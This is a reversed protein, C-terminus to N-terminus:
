SSIEFLFPQTNLYRNCLFFVLVLVELRRNSITSDNMYNILDDFIQPGEHGVRTYHLIVIVFKKIEVPFSIQASFVIWQLFKALYTDCGM